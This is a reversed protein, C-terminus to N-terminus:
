QARVKDILGSNMKLIDGWDGANRAKINGRKGLYAVSRGRYHTSRCFAAANIHKYAARATMTFKEGFGGRGTPLNTKAPGPESEGQLRGKCRPRCATQPGEVWSVIGDM